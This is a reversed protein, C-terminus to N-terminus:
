IRFFLNCFRDALEVDGRATGGNIRGLATLVFSSPDFDLVLPLDDIRGAAPVMTLGDGSVSVHTEASHPGSVRIGLEFPEVGDCRATWEWLTLCLPVLMDAAAGDLAHARGTGQRIDWAHVAYDLLQAAPYLCAPLPGMYRHPVLLGSWEEATLAEFIGLVKSRDDDLRDLLEDRPTGRLALAAQDAHRDMEGIGLSEPPTGTGRAAAFGALYGEATDVLHGVIDRVQWHGSATPAEWAGPASALAVLADAQQQITRLLRDKSEVDMFNWEGM